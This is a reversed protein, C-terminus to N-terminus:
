QTYGKAVLRAKHREISGDVNYKIKYVWKCGVVYQNPPLDIISWTGNLELAKIEDQMAKQWEPSGCAEQYSQPEVNASVSLVVAKFHTSLKGFGLVDSLPNVIPAPGSILNSSALQCHYDQLYAPRKVVRTSNSTQVDSSESSVNKTPAPADDPVIEVNFEQSNSVEPIPLSLITDPFIEMFDSTSSKGSFPFISEHFQVNRSVFIRGFEIDLLGYAKM